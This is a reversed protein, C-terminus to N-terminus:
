ITSTKYYENIWGFVENEFIGDISYRIKLYIPMKNEMIEKESETLSEFWQLIIIEQKEQQRKEYKLKMENAAKIAEAQLTDSTYPSGHILGGMLYGIPNIIKKSLRGNVFDDEFDILSQNIEYSSLKGVSILQKLRAANFGFKEFPTIDFNWDDNDDERSSSTNIYLERRRRSPNTNPQTNLKTDVKHRSQTSNTNLKHRTEMQLLENYINDPVEYASWGGRGNKFDNVILFDKECLRTISTKISGLPVELCSAIHMITLPETVHSRAKKCEEFIFFLISRQVGILTSIHKTQTLNTDVKHRSQTKTTNLKTHVKHKTQTQNGYSIIEKHASQTQNTDLEQTQNTDVKHQTQTLNTDLKNETQEQNKGTEEISSPIITTITEAIVSAELFNQPDPKFDDENKDIFISRLNKQNGSYRSDPKLFNDLIGKKVAM